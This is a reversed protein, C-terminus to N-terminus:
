KELGHVLSKLFVYAHRIYIAILMFYYRISKIYQPLQNKHKYAGTGPRATFDIAYIADFYFVSKVSDFYENWTESPFGTIVNSKVVLANTEKKLVKLKEIVEDPCYERGMRKVIRPNGSQLPLNFNVIRSDKLLEKMEDFMSLFFMPEFYNIVLKFDKKISLIEKLLTVFDTGIDIGYCGIDDGLLWFKEQGLSLGKQFEHMINVIPKSQVYGKAFKIACFSCKGACGTSVTIGFYEENIIATEFINHLPQFKRNIIKEFKFYPARLTLLLKHQFTLDGFDNSDFFNADEVDAGKLGLYDKLSGVDSPEFSFGDHVEELATPNIKTLCGGVIIEKGPNEEKLKTILDTTRKEQNTTYACTNVILYDADEISSVSEMGSSNLNKRYTANELLNTACGETTTLMYFKKRM